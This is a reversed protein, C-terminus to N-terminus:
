FRMGLTASVQNETYNSGARSSDNKLRSMNLSGNLKPSFQQSLGARVYSLNDVANLTAYDSRTYGLSVNSTLNVALRSSWLLSAGIQKVSSTSSFDGLGSQSSSVAERQLSFVNAMVTNRVGQIGFTGNWRKELFASETVFNIPQTTTPPLGLLTLLNQGAVQRAIPDQIDPFYLAGLTGATDFSVPATVNGRSTTVAESYKMELITLRSRHTLEFSKSPGYYRHGISAAIKTRPTPTWEPGVSWFAGKPQSGSTAYKNDEYGVNVRLRFEPTILRTAGASVSELDIKQGSQSYDIQSKNYALNWTLVKFAPGSSFLLDIKDATSSSLGDTSYSVSDHTFRLEGIADYGFAHRLYPSVSYTKASTRNGTTNINDLAQPALSSVNQQTVGARLDIYLLRQLLEANGFANLSHSVDNAGQSARILLEPTYTANFRLRAGNGVVSLSPSIRTTWESKASGAPALSVNDSYVESVSISPRIQLGPQGSVAAGPESASSPSTSFPTSPTSYQAWASSDILLALAILFSGVVSAGIDVGRRSVTTLLQQPLVSSKLHMAMAMAMAMAM